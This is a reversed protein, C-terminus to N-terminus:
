DDDATPRRSTATLQDSLVSLPDNDENHGDDGGGGGDDGGISARHPARREGVPRDDLYM